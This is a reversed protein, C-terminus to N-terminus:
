CYKTLKWWQAIPCFFVLSVLRGIRNPLDQVCCPCCTFFIDYSIENKRFLYVISFFFGKITSCIKAFQTYIKLFVSWRWWLDIWNTMHYLYSALQKASIETPSIISKIAKREILICCFSFSHLFFLTTIIIKTITTYIEQIKRDV